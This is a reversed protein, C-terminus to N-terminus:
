KLMYIYGVTVKQEFPEGTRGDYLTVKGSEEIKAEKLCERIEAETAGDFVPTIARFGLRQAAWGLHTELIQGVNMRSPVGLPNLLIDVSTGDPLFPMDEEPLIKSIVGKNGHRGAMKDGVSIVRKTAVYVKVMQQVGSPLEDGRKLSNLKREQEDIFFQIREWHRNYIKHAKKSSDPSRIDLNELKFAKAQDAVAKDDKDSGLTKGTNPDKLEKK